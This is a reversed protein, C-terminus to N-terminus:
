TNELQAQQSGHDFTHFGGIQLSVSAPAHRLAKASLPRKRQFTREKSTYTHQTGPRQGLGEQGWHKSQVM